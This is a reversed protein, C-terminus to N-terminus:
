EHEGWLLHCVTTTLPDILYDGYLDKRAQQVNGNLGTPLESLDIM